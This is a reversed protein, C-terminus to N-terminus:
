SRSLHLRVRVLDRLVGIEAAEYEPAFTLYPNWWDGIVGLRIFEQRQSTSGNRPLNAASSACNRAEADHPDEPGLARAVQLEIPMGHCDWGPVFPTRYGLMSRSRM